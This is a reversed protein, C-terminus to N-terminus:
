DAGSIDAIDRSLTAIRSAELAAPDPVGSRIWLWTESDVIQYWDYFESGENYDCACAYAQEITAFQGRFDRMGGSPYYNYGAFLSYKAM